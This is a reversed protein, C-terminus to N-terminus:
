RGCKVSCMSSCTVSCGSSCSSSCGVSRAVSINNDAIIYAALEDASALQNLDGSSLFDNQAATFSFEPDQNQEAYGISFSSLLIGIFLLKKM